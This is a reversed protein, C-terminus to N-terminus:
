IDRIMSIVFFVIDEIWDEIGVLGLLDFSLFLQPYVRYLQLPVCTTSNLSTPRTLEEQWTEKESDVDEVTQKKTTTATLRM